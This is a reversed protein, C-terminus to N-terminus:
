LTRAVRLGVYGYRIVPEYRLRQAVRAYEPKLNWSGGRLVRRGCDGSEWARGDSPAGRYTDNWCDQVWEWVNGIMDHLGFSNPEFTGVPATRRNSWDSGAGSFNARNTGPQDGWPYATTTGARAAYEWEAESLLRYPKGTKRALWSVYAQADDWSVNIIPQRGRGWGEDPPRYSSGGAAVCADWEAFTLPYKGVAFARAITVKRQPGESEHRAVETELTGMLFGRAPVVVMEPCDVGDFFVTGPMLTDPAVASRTGAGPKMAAKPQPELSEPRGPTGVLLPITWALAREAGDAYIGMIRIIVDSAPLWLTLDRASVPEDVVLDSKNDSPSEDTAVVRLSSVAGTIAGLSLGVRAHTRYYDGVAIATAAAVAIAVVEAVKTVRRVRQRREERRWLDDFRVGLLGAVLRVLARQEGDAGGEELPRLDAALPAEVNGDPTTTL